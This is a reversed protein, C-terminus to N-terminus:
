RRRWAAPAVEEVEATFRVLAERRRQRYGAVDVRVPLRTAEGHRVVVPTRGRHRGGADTSPGVLLGLNAGRRAETNDTATSGRPRPRSAFAAVLGDLFEAVIRAQDDLTLEPMASVKQQNIRRRPPM